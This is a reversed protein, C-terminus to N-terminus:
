PLEIKYQRCASTQPNKTYFLADIMAYIDELELDQACYRFDDVEINQAENTELYTLKIIEM